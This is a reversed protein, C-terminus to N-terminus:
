INKKTLFFNKKINLRFISITTFFLSSFSFLNFNYENIFLILSLINAFLIFIFNLLKDLSPLLNDFTFSISYIIPSQLIFLNRVDIISFLLFLIHFFFFYFFYLSSFDFLFTLSIHPHFHLHVLIIHYCYYWKIYFHIFFRFYKNPYM